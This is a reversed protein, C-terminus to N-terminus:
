FPLILSELPYPTGSTRDQEGFTMSLSASTIDRSMFHNPPLVIEVKCISRRWKSSTLPPEAEIDSWFNEMM